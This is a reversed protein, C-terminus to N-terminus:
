EVGALYIFVISDRGHGLLNAVELRAADKYMGASVRKLYEDRAYAHRLGHMTLASKQDSSVNHGSAARGGISIKERHYSVFNQVIKKFKHINHNDVYKNPTFVYKGPTAEAYKKAFIEYARDTLKISRPIAGKTNTLNLYGTKLANKVDTYKLTCLEDLRTGTTRIGELVDAIDSKEYKYSMEKMDELEKEEWARDIRGDGTHDLELLKNFTTADSLSHRTVEMCNHVFRIASLENKIYKHNNGKAKENEAFAKVHKDGINSLNSMKYEQGLFKVFREMTSVYTYRTNLKNQNMNRVTKQLQRGLYDVSAINTKKWTYKM